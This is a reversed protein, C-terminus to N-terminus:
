SAQPVPSETFGMRRAMLAAQTRNTAGIRQFAKTLHAKVTRDSIGMQRAIQKNAFGRVVLELVQRERDSFLESARPARERQVLAAAAAPDFSAGARIVDEVASVLGECTVSKSVYGVVGADVASGVADISLDDALVLVRLSPIAALLRTVAGVVGPPTAQDLVIIGPTSSSAAAVGADITGSTSVDFGASTLCEVVPALVIPHPGILLVHHPATVEDDRYELM